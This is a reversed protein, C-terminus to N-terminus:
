VGGGSVVWVWRGSACVCCVCLVARPLPDPVPHRVVRAARGQSCHPADGAGAQAVAAGLQCPPRGRLAAM